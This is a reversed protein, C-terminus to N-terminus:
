VSKGEGRRRGMADYSEYKKDEMPDGGALILEKQQQQLTIVDKYEALLRRTKSIHKLVEHPHLNVTSGGPSSADIQHITHKSTEIWNSNYGHLLQYWALYRPPIVAKCIAIDGKRIKLM